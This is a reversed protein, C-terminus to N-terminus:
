ARDATEAPRLVPGYSVADFPVPRGDEALMRPLPPEGRGVAEDCAECLPADPLSPGHAPDLACLGAFPDEGPMREGVADAAREIEDMGGRIEPAMADVQAVARTEQLSTVADAYTGLARGVSERAPPPLDDRRMLATARARLADLCVRTRARAEAVERRARRENRGSGLALAWLGGLLGISVLILTTRTSIEDPDVAPPAAVSAAVSLRETPNAIRGVGAARLARTIDAATRPGAAAVAGGPTTVVLTGGFALRGALTRAYVPLSRAGVPGLVVALKVPRGEEDMRAALRALAAEEAPAAPGLARPSVYADRVALAEQAPDAATATGPWALALAALALLVAGM